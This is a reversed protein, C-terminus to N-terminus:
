SVRYSVYALLLFVLVRAVVNVADCHKCSASSALAQRYAADSAEYKRSEEQYAADISELRQELSKQREAIERLLSLIEQENM